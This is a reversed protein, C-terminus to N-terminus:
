DGNGKLTEFFTWQDILYYFRVPTICHWRFPCRCCSKTVKGKVYSDLCGRPEKEFMGDKKYSEENGIYYFRSVKGGGEKHSLECATWYDLHKDDDEEEDEENDDLM